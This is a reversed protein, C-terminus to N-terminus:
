AKASAKIGAQKFECERSVPCDRCERKGDNCLFSGWCRPILYLVNTDFRVYKVPRAIIENM